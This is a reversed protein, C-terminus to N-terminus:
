EEYFHPLIVDFNRLLKLKHPDKFHDSYKEKFPTSTGFDDLIHYKM